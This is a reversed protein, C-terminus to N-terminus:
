FLTMYWASYLLAQFYCNNEDSQLDNADDRHGRLAIGENGQRDCFEVRTMSYHIELNCKKGNLTNIIVIFYLIYFTFVM